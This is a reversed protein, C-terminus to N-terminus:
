PSDKVAAYMHSMANSPSSLTTMLSPDDETVQSPLTM